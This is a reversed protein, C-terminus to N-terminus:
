PSDVTDPLAANPPVSETVPAAVKFLVIATVPLAVNLLVIATVPAAVNLLVTVTAALRATSVFTNSTSTTLLRTPILSAAGAVAKDTPPSATIEAFRVALLRSTFASAVILPLRFLEQAM